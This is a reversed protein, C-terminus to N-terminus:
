SVAILPQNTFVAFYITLNYITLYYLLHSKKTEYLFYCHVKTGGIGNDNAIILNHNVLWRNNSQIATGVLHNCNTILRLHHILLSVLVNTGNARQTITHNGVERCALLHHTTKNLHNM